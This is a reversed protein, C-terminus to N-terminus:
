IHILSLAMDSLDNSFTLAWGAVVEALTRDLVDYLFVSTQDLLRQPRVFTQPNLVGTLSPQDQRFHTRGFRQTM